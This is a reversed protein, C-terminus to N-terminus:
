ENSSFDIGSADVSSILDTSKEMHASFNTDRLLNKENIETYNKKEVKNIAKLYDKNYFCNGLSNGFQRLSRKIADTVAEKKAKEWAVVKSRQNESSGFGIDERFAKNKLTIRVLASIGVSIKNPIDEYFDITIKKVKSSWGDYGFIKNALDIAAWGEIYAIKVGNFGPRYSIYEPGLNQSLIKEIEDRGKKRNLKPNNKESNPM